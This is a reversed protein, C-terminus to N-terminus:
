FGLYYRSVTEAGGGQEPIVRPMPQAVLPGFPGAKENEASMWFLGDMKRAHKKFKQAYKV